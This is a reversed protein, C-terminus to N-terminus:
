YHCSEEQEMRDIIRKLRRMYDYAEREKYVFHLRDYIWSLFQWDSAVMNNKGDDPVMIGTSM